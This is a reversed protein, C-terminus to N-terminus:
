GEQKEHHFHIRRADKPMLGEVREPWEVLILNESNEILASWGLKALEDEHELRYADIHVLKKFGHWDVDYFNMISFTPSPMREVGMMKGLNQAFYTKGAGLEGQLGVVTAKM